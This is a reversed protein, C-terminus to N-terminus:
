AITFSIEWKMWAPCTTRAVSFAKMKLPFLHDLITLISLIFRFSAAMMWQRNMLFYCKERNWASTELKKATEEDADLMEIVKSYQDVMAMHHAFLELPM